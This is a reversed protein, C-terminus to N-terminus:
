LLEVKKYGIKVDPPLYKCGEPLRGSTIQAVYLIDGLEMKISERNYSCGHIYAMDPHGMISHADKKERDFEKKSITTVRFDGDTIMQLSFANGVYKM